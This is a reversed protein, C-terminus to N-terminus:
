VEFIDLTCVMSLRLWLSVCVILRNVMKLVRNVCMLMTM